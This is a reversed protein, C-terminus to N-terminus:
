WLTVIAGMQQVRQMTAIISFKDVASAADFASVLDYGLKLVPSNTPTM